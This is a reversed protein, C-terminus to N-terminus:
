DLPLKKFCPGHAREREVARRAGPTELVHRVLAEVNTYPSLDFPTDSTRAWLWFVYADAGSRGDLWWERGALRADLLEFEKALANSAPLRLSGVCDPDDVFRDPVAMRTILPHVGSSFWALDSLVRVGSEEALDPLLKSAPYRRSLWCLIALNETITGSDTVLAPVKGRPNIALYEPSRQQKTKFLDIYEVSFPEGIWELAIHSVISCAPPCSYLRLNM